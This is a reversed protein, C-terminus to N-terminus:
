LYWLGFDKFARIKNQSGAMYNAHVLQITNNRKSQIIQKRVNKSNEFLVMNDHTPNIYRLGFYLLGNPYYILSLLSVKIGHVMRAMNMQRLFENQLNIKYEVELLSNILNKTKPTNVFLVCGICPMFQDDQIIIDFEGVDKTFVNNLNNLVVIDVDLYFVREYTNLLDKIIRMRIKEFNLFDKNCWKMEHNVQNEFNYLQVNFGKITLYKYSREGTTYAIYNTINNKKLSILHNEALEIMGDNFISVYILKNDM